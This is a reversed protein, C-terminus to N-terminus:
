ATKLESEILDMEVFVSMDCDFARKAFDNIQALPLTPFRDAIMQQWLELSLPATDSTDEIEGDFVAPTPKPKRLFEEDIKQGRHALPDPTFRSLIERMDAVVGSQTWSQSHHLSALESQQLCAKFYAQKIRKQSHGAHLAESIAKISLYDTKRDFRENSAEIRWKRHLAHATGTLKKSKTTRAKGTNTEKKQMIAKGDCQVGGEASKFDNQNERKYHVPPTTYNARMSWFQRNKPGFVFLDLSEVIYARLKARTTPSSPNYGISRCAYNFLKGAHSYPRRTLGTKIYCRIREWADLKDAKKEDNDKGTAEGQSTEPDSVLTKMERARARKVSAHDLAHRDGYEQLAYTKLQRCTLSEGNQYKLDLKSQGTRDSEEQDLIETLELQYIKQEAPPPPDYPLPDGTLRLLNTETDFELEQQDPNYGEKARREAEKQEVELIAYIPLDGEDELLYDEGQAQTYMHWEPDTTPDYDALPGPTPDGLFANIEHTDQWIQADEDPCPSLPQNIKSEIM